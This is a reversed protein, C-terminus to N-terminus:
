GFHHVAGLRAYQNQYVDDACAHLTGGRFVIDGIHVWDGRRVLDFLVPVYDDSDFGRMETQRAPCGDLIRNLSAAEGARRDHHVVVDEGVGAPGGALLQQVDQAGAVHVSVAKVVPLDLQHVAERALHLGIHELSTLTTDKEIHAMACATEQPRHR